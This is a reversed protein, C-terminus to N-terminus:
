LYSPQHLCGKLYRNGSSDGGFKSSVKDDPNEGKESEPLLKDLNLSALYPGVFCIFFGDSLTHAITLLNYDIIQSMNDCLHWLLSNPTKM